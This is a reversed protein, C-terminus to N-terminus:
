AAVGSSVPKDLKSEWQLLKARAEREDAFDKMFGCQLCEARWGYYDSGLTMDGTECRPCTKFWIM